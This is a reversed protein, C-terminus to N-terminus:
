RVARYAFAPLFNRWVVPTKEIRSFKQGLKKRLKRGRPTLHALFYTFTVFVGGPKLADRAADLLADQLADEFLAFPLGSIICDCHELGMQALYKGVKEASDHYVITEPLRKQLARVFDEQIEIAFFQADPGLKRVIVETFSGTGPGFEVVTKADRVGAAETVAEALYKSSPAFAGVHKPSILYEKIFCLLEM